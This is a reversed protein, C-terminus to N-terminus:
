RFKVNTITVDIPCSTAGGDVAAINTGTFQWQIGVVQTANGDTAWASDFATFATTITKATTIPSSVDVIQKVAPFAYCSGANSDCGGPPTQSTPRQDFTQIQMELDCGPAGPGSIDFQVNPHIKKFEDGWVQMLPYLAFAGSVTITGSLTDAPTDTAAPAPLATATPAPTATACASLLLSLAVFTSVLMFTIKKM